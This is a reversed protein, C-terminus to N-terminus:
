DVPIVKVNYFLYNYVVVNCFYKLDIYCWQSFFLLERLTEMKFCHRVQLKPSVLFSSVATLIYHESTFM